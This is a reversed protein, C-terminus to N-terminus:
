DHSKTRNTMCNQFSEIFQKKIDDLLSIEGWGDEYRESDYEKKVGIYNYKISSEKYKDLESFDDFPSFAVCLVSEFHESKESTNEDPYLFWENESKEDCISSIMHKILRTKGTGNRGILVHINTPPFSDPIVSFNLKFNPFLADQHIIYDFRYPTLKAEGQTIRHFQKECTFKTVDRLLSYRMVPEEMYRNLLNLDYAIDMLAVFINENLRDELEKVMQYSDASQWLSFYGRSLRNFEKPITDVTNQKLYMNSKAIKITGLETTIGESDVYIGHFTTRFYYDDVDDYKLIIVDRYNLEKADVFSVVFKM